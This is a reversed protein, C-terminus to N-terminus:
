KTNYYHCGLSSQNKLAATTVIYATQCAQYLKILKSTPYVEKYFDHIRKNLTNLDEFARKLRNKTRMIGVYNWMTNKINIWDQQILAPDPLSPAKPYRWDPISDLLRKKKITQNKSISKAIKQGARYGWVLAELLSTSALRNAGHVGTCSCEGVAFLHPLSTKGDQDVLIGGCFYHAAPVVPILEKEIPIHLKKCTNYITPFRTAFNKVKSINLYVYNQEQQNLEEVIARSVIDRPALDKLSHYKAMFPELKQNVLFAGEGRVAESILFTQPGMHLLATPHFQVYEANLIKCGARYAMSIGSGVSNLTNTTHLYVQGIGGTALVTYHALITKIIKKKKDLVYAGLCKNTLQYKFELLTSHHHSTILDIAQHDTLTNINTKKQIAQILKQMISKGTYDNCFLIRPLSHAGEQTLLYENNKKTFSINLQNFLIKEILQPGQQCLIRIAKIYNQGAGANLIDQELKRPSDKPNKYVIGGQALSSNSEELSSSETIVTIQIPLHSLTLATILGSLGSGIILIDTFIRQM